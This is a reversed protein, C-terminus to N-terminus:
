GKYRLTVSGSGVTPKVVVLWVREGAEPAEVRTGSAILKTSVGGADSRVLALQGPGTVSATGTATVRRAMLGGNSLMAAAEGGVALTAVKWRDLHRAWDLRKGEGDGPRWAYGHGSLASAGFRALDLPVGEGTARVIAGFSEKTTDSETIHEAMAALLKSLGTPGHTGYWTLWFYCADYIKGQVPGRAFALDRDNGDDWGNCGNADDAYVLSDPQHSIHSYAHATEQMRATGESFATSSSEGNTGPDGYANQFNHFMEHGVVNSLADRDSAGPYSYGLANLAILVQSSMHIQFDDRIWVCALCYATIASDVYIVGIEPTGGHPYPTPANSWGRELGWDLYDRYNEKAASAMIRIYDVQTVGTNRGLNPGMPTESAHVEITFGDPMEVSTFLSPDEDTGVPPEIVQEAVLAGAADRVYSRRLGPLATLGEIEADFPAVAFGTAIWRAARVGRDDLLVTWTATVGNTRAHTEVVVVGPATTRVRRLTVSDFYPAAAIQAFAAAQESTGVARGSARWASNFGAASCWLNGARVLRRRTGPAILPELVLASDFGAVRSIGVVEADPHVM